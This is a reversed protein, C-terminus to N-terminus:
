LRNRANQGGLHACKIIKELGEYKIPNKHYGMTKSLSMTRNNDGMSLEIDEMTMQSPHEYGCAHSIEAIEKVLSRHYNYFRESKLQPDIGAQLWKNSTAVGSPCHNTHCKQAQICGISMMAERAINVSDAGMAFAMLAKEAFGLKGSAIFFIKDTLDHRQFIQYIKAFAFTFPMSVHDAFAHPAAGTGGEGGDITIFDPGSNTKVMYAALEEWQDLKGIASKIGVPLGTESAMSEIFEVMEPINSFATHFAPSIADKGKPIQRIAAIEDNIKSGPLMGGKGPKAGQSLKLEVARLFPNNEVKEKLKEM